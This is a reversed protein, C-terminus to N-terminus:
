RSDDTAGTRLAATIRDNLAAFDPTLRLGPERRLGFPVDINDVVQGPCGSLVVVRTSMYIAEPVSHTVFLGAFRRDTFMDLVEDNLRERTIEDLAGFPEDFLFLDPEIMLSRALSVRMRMGGSLQHPLHDRYNGLGVVDLAELAATRRGSRSQGSLEPFLEVNRLVSRWPLLNADQFVFGIRQASVAAEGTTPKSLGAAVRLLTSKGCGSPGVISVFEGRQLQLDIGRVAETGRPYTVGVSAFNLVDRSHRDAPRASAVQETTRTSM